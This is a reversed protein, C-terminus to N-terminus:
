RRRQILIPVRQYGRVLFDAVPALPEETELVSDGVRALWTELAIRAARRALWAGLCFHEGHGFALHHPSRRTVDFREPEPFVRPDLNAAQIWGLGTAGDPIAVGHLLLPRASLRPRAQLPAAFRLTEEVAGEVLSPENRVRRLQDPHQHLLGLLNGVLHVTTNQGAGLQENLLAGVDVRGEFEDAPIRALDSVMDDKPEVRRRAVLEEFYASAARQDEAQSGGMYLSMRPSDPTALRGLTAHLVRFRGEDAEPVGILERIMTAALPAALGSVVEIQGRGLAEDILRACVTRMRPVMAEIRRPRYAHAFFRRLPAHAPPDTTLLRVVREEPPIRELRRATSWDDTERYFARVDEHRFVHWVDAVPDHVVRPGSLARTFWPRPDSHGATTWPPPPDLPITPARVPSAISPNAPEPSM